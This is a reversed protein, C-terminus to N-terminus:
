LEILNPITPQVSVPLLDWLTLLLGVLAHEIAHLPPLSLAPNPNPSFLPFSSTLPATSSLQHPLDPHTVASRGIGLLDTHKHALASRMFEPTTLGGTLIILPRKKNSPTQNPDDTALTQMARKSFGEFIAQRRSQSGGLLFDPHALRTLGEDEVEIFDLLGWGAIAQLHELARDESAVIGAATDVYDAANLKIGLVFDAPVVGPLRIATVIRHLFLLPNTRSSYEDTRINAQQSMFQCILDVLVFMLIEGMWACCTDAGWRVGDEGCAACGERVGSGRGGRGKCEDGEPNPVAPQEVVVGVRAADELGDPGASPAKPPVFLARGGLFNPSQRGTHVIQMIALTGPETEAKEGGGNRAKGEGGVGLGHILEAWRVFPHLTPSSPSIDAPVVVDRGLGLQDSAVQVNGTIIMGWGGTAWCAYLAHHMANPPGGHFTALHEYLAVKVLRNRLKRGCPLTAESLIEDNSADTAM